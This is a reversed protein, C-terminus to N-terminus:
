YLLNGTDQDIFSLPISAPISIKGLLYPIYSKQTPNHKEEVKVYIRVENTRIDQRVFSIKQDTSQKGISLIVLDNKQFVGRDRKVTNVFNRENKNLNEISMSTYKGIKLPKVDANYIGHIVHVQKNIGQNSPSIGQLYPVGGYVVGFILLIAVFYVIM